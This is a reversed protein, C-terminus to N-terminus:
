YCLKVAVSTLAALGQYAPNTLDATIVSGTATLWGNTSASNLLTAETSDYFEYTM